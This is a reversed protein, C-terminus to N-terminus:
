NEKIYDKGDSKTHQHLSGHESDIFLKYDGKEINIMSVKKM